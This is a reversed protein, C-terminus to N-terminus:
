LSAIVCSLKSFVRSAALLNSGQPRVESLGETVSRRAQVVNGITIKHRWDSVQKRIGPGEAISL